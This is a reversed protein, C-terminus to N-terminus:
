EVGLHRLSTRLEKVATQVDDFTLASVAWRAHKQALAIAQDDVTTSATPASSQSTLHSSTSATPPHTTSAALHRHHHQQQAFHPPGQVAPRSPPQPQESPTHPLSDPTFQHTSATLDRPGGPLDSFPSLSTPPPFSQFVGSLSSSPASSPGGVDKGIAAPTDPLVFPSGAAGLSEPASPLELSTTAPEETSDALESHDQMSPSTPPEHSAASPLTPRISAAAAAPPPMSSSRSPHISEDATSRLAMERLISDSEDPIEEVSPQRPRPQAAMTTTTTRTVPKDMMQEAEPDTPDIPPQELLEERHARPNTANPDEGNKIAKAIRLAHYKAFKIKAAIEADPSEAWIQLLELFTAAAQFTDATQRALCNCWPM